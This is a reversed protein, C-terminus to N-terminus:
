GTQLWIKDYSIVGKKEFITKLGVDLIQKRFLAGTKKKLPVVELEGERRAQLCNVRAL